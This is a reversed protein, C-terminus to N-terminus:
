REKRDSLKTDLIEGASRIQKKASSVLIRVMEGIEMKKSISAAEIIMPLNIGTIIEVKGKALLSLSLNSPTGGFMDILMIVGDGSDVSKVAKLLQERGRDPNDDINISVAKFNELSSCTVIQAVKLLEEALRAHAVVVIGVM